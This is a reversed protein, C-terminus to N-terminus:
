LIYAYYGKLGCMHLVLKCDKPNVVGEGTQLMVAKRTSGQSNSRQPKRELTPEEPRKAIGVNKHGRHSTPSDQTHSPTRKKLVSRPMKTNKSATPVFKPEDMKPLSITDDPYLFEKMEGELLESFSMDNSVHYPYEEYFYHSQAKFKKTIDGFPWLEGFVCGQLERVFDAKSTSVRLNDYNQDKPHMTGFSGTGWHDCLLMINSGMESLGYTASEALVVCNAQDNLKTRNSSWRFGGSVTEYLSWIKADKLSTELLSSFSESLFELDSIRRLDGILQQSPGVPYPPPNSQKRYRDDYEWRTNTIQNVTRYFDPDSLFDSGHQPVAPATLM